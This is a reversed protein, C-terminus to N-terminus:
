FWRFHLFRKLKLNFNIFDKINKSYLNSNWDFYLMSKIFNNLKIFIIKNKKEKVKKELFYNTTSLNKAFEKSSITKSLFNLNTKLIKIEESMLYPYKKVPIPANIAKLLKQTERAPVSFYTNIYFKNLQMFELEIINSLNIDKYLKYLYITKSQKKNKKLLYIINPYSNFRKKGNTNKISISVFDFLFFSKTKIFFPKKYRMNWHSIINETNKEWIITLGAWFFNNKFLHLNEDYIQNINLRLNEAFYLKSTFTDYIEHLYKKNFFSIYETKISYKLWVYFVFNLTHKWKYFIFLKIKDLFNLYYNIKLKRINYLLNM